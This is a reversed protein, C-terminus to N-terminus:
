NQSDIMTLNEYYSSRELAGGSYRFFDDNLKFMGGEAKIWQADRRPHRDLMSNWNRYNQHGNTEIVGVKLGPLPALLAAMTKNWDVLIPNATLDACFCPVGRDYALKAIKLSISM